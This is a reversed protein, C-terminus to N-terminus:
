SMLLRLATRYKTNAQALLTLSPTHSVNYSTVGSANKGADTDLGSYVAEKNLRGLAANRVNVSSPLRDTRQLAQSEHGVQGRLPLSSASALFLGKIPVFPVGSVPSDVPVETLSANFAMPSFGVGQDQMGILYQEFAHDEQQSLSADIGQILASGTNPVNQVTRDPGHSTVSGSHNRTRLKSSIVLAM